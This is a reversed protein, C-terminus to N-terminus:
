FTFYDSSTLIRNGAKFVVVTHEFQVIRSKHETVMPWVGEPNEEVWEDGDSIFTEIALVQGEKILSSGRRESYNFIHHPDEHLSRGIGHGTLNRLVTYGAGLATKFIAKGISATSTGPRAAEIGAKLAARSVRLMDDQKLDAGGAIVTMGTDAFYGDKNASVDINVSDGENLRRESPIGHCAVENVSICTYGPFDYSSKPASLAGEEELLDKAMLDLELTCIGPRVAQALEDRVRAVIRGIECLGALDQKTIAIM